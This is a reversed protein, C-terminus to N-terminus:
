VIKDIIQDIYNKDLCEKVLDGNKVENTYKGNVNFKDKSGSLFWEYEIDFHGIDIAWIGAKNLDMSLITATPGIALLVIDQTLAYKETISLISDYREFANKSPVLIRKVSVANDFLDNGVGMRTQFGEVLLIKKNNWIQKIKPFSYIARKNGKQDMYPRTIHADGFVYNKGATERLLSVIKIKNDVLWKRWFRVTTKNCGRLSTFYHPICILFHEDKYKLTQVLLRAIDDSANQFKLNKGFILEFEGDGFRAVSCHNNEIYNLTAKYNMIKCRYSIILYIRKFFRKIVLKQNYYNEILNILRRKLKSDKM